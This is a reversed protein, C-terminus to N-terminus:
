KFIYKTPRMGEDGDKLYRDYWSYFTSRSIGFETLTRKVGLESRTVAEIIEMKEGASLRM